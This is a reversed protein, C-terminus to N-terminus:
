HVKITQGRYFHMTRMTYVIRVSTTFTLKTTFHMLNPRSVSLNQNDFPQFKPMFRGKEGWISRTCKQHKKQIIQMTRTTLVIRIQWVSRVCLVNHAPILSIGAHVIQIVCRRTRDTHCVVNHVIRIGYLMTYSRYSVCCQTRDTHWVVNHVIQIVCLM